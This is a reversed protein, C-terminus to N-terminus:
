ATKEGSAAAEIDELYKLIDKYASICGECEGIEHGYGDVVDGSTLEFGDLETQNEAIKKKLYEKLKEM